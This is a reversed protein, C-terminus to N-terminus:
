FRFSMPSVWSSILQIVFGFGREWQGGLGGEEKARAHLLFLGCARPSKLSQTRNSIDGHNKLHSANKRRLARGQSWQISIWRNPLNESLCFASDAERNRSAVSEKREKAVESFVTVKRRLFTVLYTKSPTLLPFPRSIIPFLSSICIASLLTRQFSM